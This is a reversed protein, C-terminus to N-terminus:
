VEDPKPFQTKSAQSHILDDLDQEDDEKYATGMDMGKEAEDKLLTGEEDVDKEGEQSKHQQGPNPLPLGKEDENVNNAEINSM